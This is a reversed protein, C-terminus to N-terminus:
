KTEQAHKKGKANRPLFAGSRREKIGHHWVM